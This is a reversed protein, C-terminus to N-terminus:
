QAGRMHTRIADATERGDPGGLRLAFVPCMAGSTVQPALISAVVLAGMAGGKDDSKSSQLTEDLKARYERESM